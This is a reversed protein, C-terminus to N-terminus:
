LEHFSSTPLLSRPRKLVCSPGGGESQLGQAQKFGLAHEQSARWRSTVQPVAITRKSSQATFLPTYSGIETSHVRQPGPLLPFAKVRM